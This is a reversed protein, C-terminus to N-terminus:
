LPFGFLMLLYRGALLHLKIGKGDRGAFLLIHFSSFPLKGTSLGPLGRRVLHDLNRGGTLAPPSFPVEGRHGAERYCLGASMMLFVTSLDWHLPMRRFTPGTNRLITLTLFSRPFVSFNGYISPSM